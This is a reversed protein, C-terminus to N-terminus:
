RAERVYEKGAWRMPVGDRLDRASTKLVGGALWAGVIASPAAWMPTASMRYIAMVVAQWTLLGTGCVILTALALPDHLGYWISVILGLAGVLPLVTGLLRMRLGCTRLRDVKRKGAESYIRKWGSVFEGYSGYMRCSVLGDALLLGAPLKAEHVKRALEIDELIAHRVSPHGGVTEYAARTFMIFQGNAFPRREAAPANARELPFQRMLEMGAMPQVVREFWRDSTLTCLLSLMSLERAQLLNVAASIAAPRLSTDADVFLLIEADKAGTSDSVGRVIAHVKGAWDAPCHAIRVIELREDGAAVKRLVAETEDTCRDLAFVLRLNAYDQSLLSQAVIAIVSAENHAPVIVCVRPGTRALEAARGDVGDRCTPLRRRTRLIHWGVVGWYVGLAVGGLLLVIMLAILVPPM